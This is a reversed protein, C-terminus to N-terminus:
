ISQYSYQTKMEGKRGHSMSAQVKNGVSTMEFNVALM